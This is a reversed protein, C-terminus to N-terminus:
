LKKLAALRASPLLNKFSLIQVLENQINAVGTLKTSKFIEEPLPTINEPVTAVGRFEDVLFGIIIDKINSIIINMKPSIRKLGLYTPLDFIVIQKERSPVTGIIFKKTKNIPAIEKPRVVEVVEDIPVGFSIGEIKFIFIKQSLNHKEIM